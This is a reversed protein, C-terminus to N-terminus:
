YIYNGVINHQRFCQSYKDKQSNHVYLYFMVGKLGAGGSHTPSPPPPTRVDYVRFLFIEGVLEECVLKPAPEEKVGGRQYHPKTHKHDEFYKLDANSFTITCGQKPSCYLMAGHLPPM